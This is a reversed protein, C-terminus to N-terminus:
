ICASSSPVRSSCGDARRLPRGLGCGVAHHFAGLLFACAAVPADMPADVSEAGTAMDVMIEEMHMEVVSDGSKPAKHAHAM